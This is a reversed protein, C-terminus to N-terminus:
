SIHHLGTSKIVRRSLHYKFKMPFELARANAHCHCCWRGCRYRSSCCLFLLWSSPSLLFHVEIMTIPNSAPLFHVFPSIINCTVDNTDDNKGFSDREKRHRTYARLLVCLRVREGRTSDSQARACLRLLLLTLMGGFLSYHSILM